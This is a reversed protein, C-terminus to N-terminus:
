QRKQSTPNEDRSVIRVVVFMEDVVRKKRQINQLSLKFLPKVEDLLKQELTHPM